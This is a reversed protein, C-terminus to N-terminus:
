SSKRCRLMFDPGFDGQPGADNSLKLFEDLCSIPNLSADFPHIVIDFSSSQHEQAVGATNFVNSNSSPNSIQKM